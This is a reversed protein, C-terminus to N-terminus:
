HQQRISIKPHLDIEGDHYILAIDDQQCVVAIPGKVSHRMFLLRYGFRHLDYLALKQEATTQEWLESNPLPNGRRESIDLATQNM